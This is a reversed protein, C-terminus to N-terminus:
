WAPDEDGRPNRTLRRLGTGDPRVKYLSPTGGSVFVIWKGDPSWAPGGANRVLLHAHRGASGAIWIQTTGTFGHAGPPTLNLSRSFAIWRGDPSWSPHEDNDSRPPPKILRHAGAGNAGVVWIAGPGRGQRVFAIRRGDPSWAPDYDDFGKSKTIARM